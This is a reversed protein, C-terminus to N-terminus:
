INAGTPLDKLDVGMLVGVAINSLSTLTGGAKLALADGPSLTTATFGALSTTRSQTITANASTLFVGSLVSTGSGKATGSTLREIDLTGSTSNQEHRAKVEIVHCPFTAVYFVPYLSADAADGNPISINIDYTLIDNWSRLEGVSEMSRAFESSDEKKDENTALHQPGFGLEIGDAKIIKDDKEEVM